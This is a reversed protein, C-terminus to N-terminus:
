SRGARVMSSRARAEAASHGQGRRRGSEWVIDCRRRCDGPTATACRGAPGPRSEDLTRSRPLARMGFPDPRATALAGTM